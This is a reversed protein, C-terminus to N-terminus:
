AVAALDYVPVAETRPAAFNGRVLREIKKAVEPRLLIEGCQNCVEAPVHDIIYIRGQYEQPYRIVREEATDGKCVPCQNM